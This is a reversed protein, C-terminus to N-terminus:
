KKSFVLLVDSGNMLELQGNSSRFANVRRLINMFAVEDVDGICVMKTSPNVNQFSISNRGTQTFRGSFKNCGTFGSVTENSGFFRINPKDPVHMNPNSSQPPTIRAEKEKVMQVNTVTRTEGNVVETTVTTDNKTEVTPPPTRNNALSGGPSSQLVWTGELDPRVGFENRGLVPLVETGTVTVEESTNSSATRMANSGSGSRTSKPTGCSAILAAVPM